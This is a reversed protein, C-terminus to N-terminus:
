SPTTQSLAMGSALVIAVVMATLLVTLRRMGINREKKSSRRQQAQQDSSSFGPRKAPLASQPQPKEQTSM